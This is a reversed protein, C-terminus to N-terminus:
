LVQGGEGGGGAEDWWRYVVSLYQIVLCGSVTCWSGWNSSTTLRKQAVTSCSPLKAWLLRPSLELRHTLGWRGEGGGSQWRRRCGM